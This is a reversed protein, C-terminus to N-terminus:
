CIYFIVFSLLKNPISYWNCNTNLKESIPLYVVHNIPFHENVYVKCVVDSKSTNWHLIFLIRFLNISHLNVWSKSVSLVYEFSSAVLIDIEGLYNFKKLIWFFSCQWVEMIRSFIKFKECSSISKYPSVVLILWEHIPHICFFSRNYNNPYTRNAM